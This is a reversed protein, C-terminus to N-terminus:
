TILFLLSLTNVLTIMRHYKVMTSSITGASYDKTIYYRRCGTWDGNSADYGPIRDIQVVININADSGIMEMENVDDIGAGELNCDADLYVM